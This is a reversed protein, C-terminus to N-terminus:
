KVVKFKFDRDVDEEVIGYEEDVLVVFNYLEQIDKSYLFFRVSYLRNNQPVECWFKVIDYQRSEIMEDLHKNMNEIETVLDTKGMLRITIYRKYIYKDVIVKEINFIMELIDELFEDVYDGDNYEPLTRYTDVVSKAHQLKYLEDSLNKNNFDISINLHNQLEEFKETYVMRDYDYDIEIMMQSIDVINENQQMIM